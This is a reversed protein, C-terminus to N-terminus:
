RPVSALAARLPPVVEEALLQIQRRIDEAAIGPLHVRLNLSDAGSGVMLTRLREVMEAPDTVAITQDAPLTTPGDRFSAYFARQSEILSELPPGLWVRRILVKGDTGGAEDYAACFRALRDLPSVGEMLIGAGYGAARRSAAVSVAASLVPVPHLACQQFARDEDLGHLDKGRLMDIIRPLEAKFRTTAQDPPLDMATFDLAKGGSAVGLGVRGPHRANLWAVEEAVLATPRLPLLLPCAAAWGSDTDDLIWGTMQLPNPLYGGVGGHHESVMIGDFGLRLGLGAQACMEAVVGQAPLENHPYLRLSISGRAFPATTM